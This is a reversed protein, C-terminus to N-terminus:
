RLMTPLKAMDSWFEIQARIIEWEIREEENKRFREEDAAKRDALRKKCADREELLVKRIENPRRGRLSPEFDTAGYWDCVEEDYALWRQNQVFLYNLSEDRDIMGDNMALYRNVQKHLVYLYNHYSSDLLKYVEMRICERRKKSSVSNIYALGEDVCPSVYVGNNRSVEEWLHRLREYFKAKAGLERLKIRMTGWTVFGVSVCVILWVAHSNM